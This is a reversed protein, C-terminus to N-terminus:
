RVLDTGYLHKKIKDLLLNPAFPKTLWARIGPNHGPEIQVPHNESTLMFLPINKEQIAKAFEMGNMGPMHYDCIILDIGDIMTMAKLGNEAETVTFESELLTKVITRTVSDDEVILIKKM